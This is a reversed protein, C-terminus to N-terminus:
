WGHSTPITTVILHNIAVPNTSINPHKKISYQHINLQDDVQPWLQYTQPRHDTSVSTFISLIISSVDKGRLGMHHINLTVVAMASAFTVLCISVGYYLAPIHSLCTSHYTPHSLPFNLLSWDKHNENLSLMQMKTKVICSIAFCFHHKKQILNNSPSPVIWRRFTAINQLIQLIWMLLQSCNDPIIKQRWWCLKLERCKGLITKLKWGVWTKLKPFRYNSSVFYSCM